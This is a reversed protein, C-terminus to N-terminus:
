AFMAIEQLNFSYVKFMCLLIWANFTGWIADALFRPQAIGWFQRNRLIQRVLMKSNNGTQHQVEQGSIISHREEESPKIQQKPHKYCKLWCLTWVMSLLATIIFAM